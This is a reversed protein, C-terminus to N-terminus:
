VGAASLGVSLSFFAMGFSMAFRPQRVVSVVPAFFGGVTERLRESWSPQLGTTSRLRATDIGVTDALINTVLDAPPEVPELSKLWHQGAVADAFLPGCVTCTRSHAQFSELKSGTLLQDVADGLLAEFEACHMGNKPDGAM